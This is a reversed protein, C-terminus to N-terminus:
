IAGAVARLGKHDRAWAALATADLEDPSCGLLERLTKQSQSNGAGLRDKPIIFLRGEPDYTKPIVSMQRRLEHYERPIAFGKPNVAPDLLYHLNGYLEARKNRFTYSEERIEVRETFTRIGRKMEASAAEGFAVTTVDYGEARLRDAHQKGGGGRDFAVKHASNLLDHKRMMAVTERFVVETDPTKKSVLEVLGWEDVVAMATKDGGEAPDVGMALARSRRGRIEDARVEAANLWQPPFLLLESGAYFEGNIGICIRVDDWTALRKLFDRYPLVGPILVENTTEIGARKQALGLRVNPSDWGSIRIVKRFLGPM